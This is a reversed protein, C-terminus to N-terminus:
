ASDGDKVPQKLWKLCFEETSYPNHYVLHAALEEDSMARIRDANTQPKRGSGHCTHCIDEFKKVTVSNEDRDTECYYIETGKGRCEPCIM